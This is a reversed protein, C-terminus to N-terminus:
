VSAAEGSYRKRGWLGLGVLGPGMRAPGENVLCAVAFLAMTFDRFRLAEILSALNRSRIKSAEYM